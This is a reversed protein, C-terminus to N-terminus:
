SPDLASLKAMVAKFQERLTALEVALTAHQGRLEVLEAHEEQLGKVLMLILVSQKVSKTVTGLDHQIFPRDAETQGGEAVWNDDPVESMDPVDVVLGPFVQEVEQAILGLVKVGPVSRDEFNRVQLKLLDALKPTADIINTKLKADSRNGFVAGAPLYIDGNCLFEQKIATTGGVNAWFNALTDAALSSASRAVRLASAALPQDVHLKAQPAMTGVGISGFDTVDLVNAVTSGAMAIQFRRITSGNEAWQSSVFVVKIKTGSVGTFSLTFGNEVNSLVNVVYPNATATVGGSMGTIIQDEWTSGSFVQVKVTPVNGWHARLDCTVQKFVTASPLNYGFEIGAVGISWGYADTNGSKIAAMTSEAQVVGNLTFESALATADIGQENPITAKITLLSDPANTGIGMRGHNEDWVLNPSQVPIGNSAGFVLEGAVLASMGVGDEGAPGASGAPGTLGQIGQQGVVGSNGQLGMPGPAGDAGAPGREGPVAQGRRLTGRLVWQGGIFESVNFNLSNLWHDGVKPASPPSADTTLSAGPTGPGGVDDVNAFARTDPNFYIHKSM